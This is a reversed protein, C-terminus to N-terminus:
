EIIIPDNNIYQISYNFEDKLEKTDFMKISETTNSIIINRPIETDRNIIKAITEVDPHGYKGNTSILYTHSDFISLFDDSINNRSGHHSLKILDFYNGLGKDKLLLLNKYYVEPFSDGLFLLKKEKAELVFAISSGNEVKDDSKTIEKSLNHIDSIKLSKNQSINQIINESEESSIIMMYAEYANKVLDNDSLNIKKRKSKLYKEWMNNLEKINDMNPSIFTICIDKNLHIKPLTDSLVIGGKFQDVSNWNYGGKLIYSSLFLDQKISIEKSTDAKSLTAKGNNIIGKYILEDLQNLIADENESLELGKFGNYIVNKIQIIENIDNGKNERFLHIAGEIHDSHIHTLVILDLSKKNKNMELLKPKIHKYYTDKTGCDILINIEEEGNITVLFSDGCGAQFMTIKIQNM